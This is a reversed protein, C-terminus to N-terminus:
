SHILKILKEAQEYLGDGPKSIKLVARAFKEASDIDNLKYCTLALNLTPEVKGPSKELATVFMDRARQYDEGYHLLFLGMGNYPKFSDPKKSLAQEYENKAEKPLKSAMYLEGLNYHGEWSDPNLEVSKKFAKEAKEFNGTTLYITGQRLYDSYSGRRSVLEGAAKSAGELDLKVFYLNYLEEWLPLANPNHKLGQKLLKEVLEGKGAQKYFRTLTMYGKVFYPNAKISELVQKLGAEMRETRCLLYGLEYHAQFHKPEGKIVYRLEEEARELEEMELLCKAMNFHAPIYDPKLKVAEEFLQIAKQFEERKFAGLGKVMYAEANEPDNELAKEIMELGRSHNNKMFALKGLGIYPEAADPNAKGAKEFAKEADVFQLKSMLDDAQKLYQAYETM